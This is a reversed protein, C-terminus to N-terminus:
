PGKRYVSPGGPGHLKDLGLIRELLRVRFAVTLAAFLLLLAPIMTILVAPGPGALGFYDSLAPTVLVAAFVAVLVTVLIAPRRDPTPATWAAFFRTPPALFLILVFSALCLLV